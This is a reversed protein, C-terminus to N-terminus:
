YGTNLAMMRSLSGYLSNEWKIGRFFLSISIYLFQKLQKKM